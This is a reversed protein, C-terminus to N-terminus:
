VSFITDPGRYWSTVKERITSKVGVQVLVRADLGTLLPLWDQDAILCFINMTLLIAEM